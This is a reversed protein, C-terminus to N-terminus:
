PACNIQATAPPTNKICRAIAPYQAHPGRISIVLIAIMIAGVVLAVVFHKVTLGMMEWQLVRSM